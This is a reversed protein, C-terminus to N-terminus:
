TIISMEERERSESLTNVVKGLYSCFARRVDEPEEEVDSHILPLRSLQSALALRGEAATGGPKHHAVLLCQSEQLGQSSIFMSHWSEIEKIHNPIEPNFVVVVGSCDKMLAPWCSEFKFDGSCDWLEVECSKMDGSGELQSEFELIRVAQTPRYEGGVNETADSLFNALVSKGSENPGILLIKAKIM